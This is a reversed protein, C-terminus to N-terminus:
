LRETSANSHPSSDGLLTLTAAPLVHSLARSCAFPPPLLWGPEPPQSIVLTLITLLRIARIQHATPAVQLM